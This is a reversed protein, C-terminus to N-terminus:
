IVGLYVTSQIYIKSHTEIKFGQKLFFEDYKIRGNVKSSLLDHTTNDEQLPTSRIGGGM